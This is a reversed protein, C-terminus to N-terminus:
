SLKFFLYSFLIIKKSLFKYFYFVMGNMFNAGLVAGSGETLYVRATYKGGGVADMYSSWPMSIDFPKGDTGEFVFILNPLLAIQAVTLLYDKASFDLGTIDKFKSKFVTALSSPLYTDTTGSDVIIGKGTNLKSTDIGLSNRYIKSGRGDPNTFVVDLLKVTFWGSNHLSKAYDIGSKSHIRQDVGGITMIGGGVRYCLAFINVAVVGKSKLQVPLTDPSMSMGMIGDALQTKFLGTESTQCGFNFDVQYDNGKPIESRSLGGVWLKDEVKYAHWSSGESYSQSLQCPSGACNAVKCTTSNKPDWYKDTHQGCGNCGVCPFATYHSGTDIIVSQRQPVPSGIYVYSFHTGYGQYLPTL